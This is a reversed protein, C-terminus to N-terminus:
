EVTGMKRNKEGWKQQKNAAPLFAGARAPSELGIEAYSVQLLNAFLGDRRRLTWQAQYVGYPLLQVAANITTRFLYRINQETL